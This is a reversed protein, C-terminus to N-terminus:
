HNLDLRPRRSDTIQGQVCRRRPSGRSDAPLCLALGGAASVTDSDSDFTTASLSGDGQLFLRLTFGDAGSPGRGCECHPFRQASSRPLAGRGAPHSLDSPTPPPWNPGSCGFPRHPCSALSQQRPPELGTLGAVADGCFRCVTRKKLNFYLQKLLDKEM